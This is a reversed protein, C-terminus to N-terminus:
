AVVPMLYPEILSQVRYPLLYGAAAPPDSEGTGGGFGQFGPRGVGPVRQSVWLHKVLELVAEELDAPLLDRGATYTVKVARSVSGFTGYLVGSDVDLDLDTVAAGAYTAATASLVPYKRLVIPGPGTHVEDTVTVPELPGVRRELIAQARDIMSVLEDDDVDSTFNLFQRADALSVVSM